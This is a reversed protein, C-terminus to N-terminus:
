KKEKRQLPRKVGLEDELYKKMKYADLNKQDVRYATDYFVLSNTYDKKLYYAAGMLENILSSYPYKEQLRTLIKLSNELSGSRMLRQAEFLEGGVTDLNSVMNAFSTEELTVEYKMDTKGIQNLILQQKVYGAKRVELIVPTRGSNGLKKVVDEGVVLPTKGIKELDQAGLEKIYVDAEEPISKITLERTVSCSTLLILYFM